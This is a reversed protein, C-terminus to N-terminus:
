RTTNPINLRAQSHSALCAWQLTTMLLFPVLAAFTGPVAAAWGLDLCVWAFWALLLAQSALEWRQLTRGRPRRLLVARMVLCLGLWGVLSGGIVTALQPWLPLPASLDGAHIALGAIMAALLLPMMGPVTAAYPWRRALSGTKLGTM